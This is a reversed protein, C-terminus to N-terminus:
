EKNDKKPVFRDLINPVLDMMKSLSQDKKDLLLLKSDGEQIIIMAMPTINFGGTAAESERNRASSANSGYSGSGFGVSLKSVPIIIINGIEIPDGVVTTTRAIEKVKDLLADITETIAM